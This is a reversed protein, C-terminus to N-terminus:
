VGFVGHPKLEKQLSHSEEMMVLVIWLALAEVQQAKLVVVWWVLMEEGCAVMVVEGLM